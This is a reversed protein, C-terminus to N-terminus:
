KEEEMNHWFLVYRCLIGKEMIINRIDSPPYTTATMVKDFNDDFKIAM